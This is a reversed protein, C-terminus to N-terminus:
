NSVASERQLLAEKELVYGTIEMPHKARTNLEEVPIPLSATKETKAGYFLRTIKAKLMASFCTPCPESSTYFTYGSLSVNKLKLCLGRIANIEGHATPDFLENVRDHDKWVIKGKPDVILVGFPKQGEKLAKEAEKIASSMYDEETM